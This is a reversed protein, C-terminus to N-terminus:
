DPDGCLGRGVTAVSESGRYPRRGWPRGAFGVPLKRGWRGGRPRRGRTVQQVDLVRPQVWTMLVRKDVEDISGKVLGASLAKM